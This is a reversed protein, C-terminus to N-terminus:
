TRFTHKDALPVFVRSLCVFIVKFVNLRIQKFVATKRSVYRLDLRFRYGIEINKRSPKRALRKALSSELFTKFIGSACVKKVNSPNNFRLPRCSEEYLVYPM